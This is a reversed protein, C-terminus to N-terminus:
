KHESDSTASLFLDAEMCVCWTYEVNFRRPFPRKWTAKVHFELLANKVRIIKPQTKNKGYM